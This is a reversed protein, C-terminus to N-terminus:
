LAPVLSLSKYCITVSSISTSTVGYSHRCWHRCVDCVRLYLSMKGSMWCRFKNVSDIVASAPFTANCRASFVSYHAYPLPLKCNIRVDRTINFNSGNHNTVRCTVLANHWNPMSRDLSSLTVSAPDNSYVPDWTIGGSNIVSLSLAAAPRGNRSDCFIVGSDSDNFVIPSPRFSPPSPYVAFTAISWKVGYWYYVSILFLPLLM